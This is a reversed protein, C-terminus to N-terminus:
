LRANSRLVITQTVFTCIKSSEMGPQKWHYYDAETLNRGDDQFELRLNRRGFTVDTLAGVTFLYKGFFMKKKKLVNHVLNYVMSLKLETM